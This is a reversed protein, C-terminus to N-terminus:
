LPKVSARLQQLQSEKQILTLRGKGGDIPQGTLANKFIQESALFKMISENVTPHFRLGGKYLGVINNVQVRYGRNVQVTNNNDQWTVRFSVIRNPEIIRSLLNREINDPHQEFVPVLPLSIEEM